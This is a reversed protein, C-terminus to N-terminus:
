DETIYPEEAIYEINKISCIGSIFNTIEIYNGQHGYLKAVENLTELFEPTALQKIQEDRIDYTM